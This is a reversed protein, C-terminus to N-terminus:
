MAQDARALGVDWEGEFPPSYTLGVDRYLRPPIGIDALRIQGAEPAHLGRKPLALTLTTHAVIAAGPARGTTADIGSPMDLSLVTASSANAWHILDATRTDPAEALGYGIMADLILTPVLGPLDSCTVERGGALRFLDRQSRAADSARRGSPVLLTVLAGHNHLHRAACIGGGGNGGDGALVLIPSERWALGLQRIALAALSRGANEMMQLLFPGSGTTALCDIQRMQDATVAPVELGSVTLFRM